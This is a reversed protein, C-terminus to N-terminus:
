PNEGETLTEKGHCRSLSPEREGANSAGSARRRYRGPEGNNMDISLALGAARSVEGVIQATLTPAFASIRPMVKLLLLLFGAGPIVYGSIRM